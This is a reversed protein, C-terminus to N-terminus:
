EKEYSYWAIIDDSDKEEVDAVSVEGNFLRNTSTHISVLQKRRQFYSRSVEFGAYAQTSHCRNNQRHLAIVHHNAAASRGDPMATHSIASSGTFPILVASLYGWPPFLISLPVVALVPWSARLIYRRLARKPLRNM